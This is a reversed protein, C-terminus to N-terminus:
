RTGGKPAPGDDSRSPAAPADGGQRAETGSAPTEHEETRACMSRGCPQSHTTTWSAGSGSFYVWRGGAIAVGWLRTGDPATAILAVEGRNAKEVAGPEATQSAPPRQDGCGACAILASLGLGHLLARPSARWRPGSPIRGADLPKSDTM